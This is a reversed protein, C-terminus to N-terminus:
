CARCARRRHRRRARGACLGYTRDLFIGDAAQYQTPRHGRLRRAGDLRDRRVGRDAAMATVMGPFAVIATRVFMAMGAVKPAAAFFATVPTPAGEYVDPTWMHFPVASVKFCFGAFLFVLGFMLGSTRVARGPDGGQRHRCVDDHRHLRLGAVRRVAAHRLVARRPRFIQAGGRDLARLRSQDRGGRLARPEDTRARSLARDPRGGFDADDHRDDGAPDPDPIRVAAAERRALYDFSMLIAAASGTLALLKLFRAFDDVVFSGGFTVLTGAPLM